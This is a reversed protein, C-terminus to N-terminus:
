KNKQYKVAIDGDYGLNGIVIGFYLFRNQWVQVYISWSTNETPFINAVPVNVLM